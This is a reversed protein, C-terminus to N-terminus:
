ESGQVKVGSADNAYIVPQTFVSGSYAAGDILGRGIIRVDHVGFMNFVGKVLAGPALYYTTDSTCSIVGADHIGPGFYVVNPGSATYTETEAPTAILLLDPQSNIHIVLNVPGPLSVTLQSGSASATVGTLTPSVSYSTITGSAAIVATTAASVTLKAIDYSRTGPTYNLTETKVPDAVGGVSMSATTSVPAAPNGPDAVVIAAQATAALLATLCLGCWQVLWRCSSSERRFSVSSM